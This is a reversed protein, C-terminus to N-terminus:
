AHVGHGNATTSRTKWDLLGYVNPRARFIVREEKVLRAFSGVLSAFKVKGGRREIRQVVDKIHLPTGEERLVALALGVQSSPGIYGKAAPGVRPLKPDEILSPVSGSHSASRGAFTEDQEVIGGGELLRFARELVVLEDQLRRVAERKAKIVTRIDLM